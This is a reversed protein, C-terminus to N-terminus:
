ANDWRRSLEEAVLAYEITEGRALRRIDADEIERVSVKAYRAETRPLAVAEVYFGSDPGSAVKEEQWDGIKRIQMTTAGRPGPPGTSTENTDEGYPWPIGDDMPEHYAVDLVQVLPQWQRQVRWWSRLASWRTRATIPQLQRGSLRRTTRNYSQFHITYRPM